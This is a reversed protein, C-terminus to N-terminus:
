LVVGLGQDRQTEVSEGWEENQQLRVPKRSTQCVCPVSRAQRKSPVRREKWFDGGGSVELGVEEGEEHRQKARVM